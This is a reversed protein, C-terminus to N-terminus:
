NSESSEDDQFTLINSLGKKLERIVVPSEVEMVQESIWKNDSGDMQQEVASGFFRLAPYSPEGESFNFESYDSLRQNLHDIYERADAAFKEPSSPNNEDSLNDAMTHALQKATTNIFTSFEDPTMSEHSIQGASQLMFAAFEGIVGLLQQNSKFNFGDIYMKDVTTKGIKWIIYAATQALQETTKAGKKHWKSKIRM